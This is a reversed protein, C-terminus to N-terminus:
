GRWVEIYIRICVVPRDNWERRAATVCVASDIAYHCGPAVTGDAAALSEDRSRVLPVSPPPRIRHVKVRVDCCLMVHARACCVSSNRCRMSHQTGSHADSKRAHQDDTREGACLSSRDALVYTYINSITTLQITHEWCEDDAVEM